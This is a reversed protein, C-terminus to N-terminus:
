CSIVGYNVIKILKKEYKENNFPTQFKLAKFFEEMLIAGIIHISEHRSKGNKELYELTNGTEEPKNSIIQQEITSHMIIHTFPDVDGQQNLNLHSNANNWFKYYEPHEDMASIICKEETTYTESNFRDKWLNIFWHKNQLKEFM